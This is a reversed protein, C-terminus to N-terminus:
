SHSTVHCLTEIARIVSETKIQFAQEQARIVIDNKRIRWPLYDKVGGWQGILLISPITLANAMHAFGSDVGIFITACKLLAAQADLSIEGKIHQISETPEILPTLGFEIINFKTDSSLLWTRFELAGATSWSRAYEDSLFHVALIPLDPKKFSKIMWARTDFSPAPYLAPHRSITKGSAILSYVDALSGFDYFNRANIGVANKNRIKLGFTNCLTEDIGLRTWRFNRILRSLLVAESYSSVELIADIKPHWRLLSSYRTECVWVLYDNEKKVEDIVTEAAIIDGLKQTMVLFHPAKGLSDATQVLKQVVVINRTLRWALSGCRRILEQVPLRAARKFYQLISLSTPAESRRGENM